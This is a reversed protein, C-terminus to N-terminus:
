KNSLDNANSFLKYGFTFFMTRNYYTIDDSSINGQLRWYNAIKILSSNYNFELFYQKYEAILGIVYGLDYRSDYNIASDDFYGYKNKKLNLRFSNSIGAQIKLYPFFKFQLLIPLEAYYVDERYKSSFQGQAFLFTRMAGKQSVRLDAKVYLNQSIIGQQCFVGGTFGIAPSYTNDIINDTTKEYIDTIGAGFLYGFEFQAYTISSIMTIILSFFLRTKM